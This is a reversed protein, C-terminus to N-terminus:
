RFGPRSSSAPHPNETNPQLAERWRRLAPRDHPSHAPSARNTFDDRQSSRRGHGCAISKASSSRRHRIPFSLAAISTFQDANDATSTSRFPWACICNMFGVTRHAWRSHGDTIDCRCGSRCQLFLVCGCRRKRGVTDQACKLHIDAGDPDAARHVHQPVALAAAISSKLRIPVCKDPRLQIEFGQGMSSGHTVKFSASASFSGFKTLFEGVTETRQKASLFEGLGIIHPQPFPDFAGSGHSHIQQQIGLLCRSVGCSFRSYEYRHNQRRSQFPSPAAQGPGSHIGRASRFPCSCASPTQGNWVTRIQGSPFHGGTHDTSHHFGHRSARCVLLPDDSECQVCPPRWTRPVVDNIVSIGRATFGFKFRKQPVACATDCLTKANPRSSSSCNWVSCIVVLHSLVDSASAQTNSCRLPGPEARYRHGASRSTEEALDSPRDINRQLFDFRDAFIEIAGFVLGLLVPRRM